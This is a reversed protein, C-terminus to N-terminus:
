EPEPINDLAHNELALVNNIREQIETIKQHMEARIDSQIEKLGKVYAPLMSDHPPVVIPIEQTGIHVREKSYQTSDYSDVFYHFKHDYDSYVASIYIKMNITQNSQKTSKDATNM